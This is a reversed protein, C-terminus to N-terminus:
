RRGEPWNFLRKTTHDLGTFPAARDCETLAICPRDYHNVRSERPCLSVLYYQNSLCAYYKTNLAM